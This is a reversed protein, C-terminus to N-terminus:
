ELGIANELIKIQGQGDVLAVDFRTETLAGQPTEALFVEASTYIRAMQQASLREAAKAFSRSHKVEVFVYQANLRLILDIEGAECRWRQAVAEYGQAEYARQVAQEAADGALHATKGSHQRSSPMM